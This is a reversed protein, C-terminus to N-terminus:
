KLADIAKNIGDLTAVDIKAAGKDGQRRAFADTGKKAFSVKDQKGEDFKLSVTLDPTDLAPATDAFGTARAGTLATLLADVKAADAPKAAPAVQKWADKDKEFTLLQGGRSIEVRTTNFSRADFLDKIRLDDTPRKLEDALASEVTFVMPRSLDRAYVAGEGAGKGIALAAQTSGAGVRATAVPKDLGYEKLANADPDNSVIAKMPTSNLRGLIGEVINFDARADVPATIRWDAGQKAITLTRDTSEIELRDTKDRDFKLITKDRLEFPSKNFAAEVFSAIVFVRPKDSVRAYLDGGTPTKGGILLNREKGGQRFTVEIRAPDLGFPKLDAPQEEVVRQVELSALNSTIGSIEAEDAAVAAPQTQQWREGQKAATTTEGKASKVIIQDIKDSQVDPFVKEQKKEESLPRKSDYYLYGGLAAAVVLLVLFSRLGRM